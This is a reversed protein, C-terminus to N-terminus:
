HVYAVSLLSNVGNLFATELDFIKGERILKQYDRVVSVFARNNMRTRPIIFSARRSVGTNGESLLQINQPRLVTGLEKFDRLTIARPYSKNGVSFTGDSKLNSQKRNAAKQKAKLSSDRQRWAKAVERMRDVGLHYKAKDIKAMQQKVFENYTLPIDWEPIEVPSNPPTPPQPSESM